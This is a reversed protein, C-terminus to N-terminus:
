PMWAPVYGGLVLRRAGTGDVNITWIETAQSPDTADSRMFVLARGDPRWVFTGHHYLPDATLAHAESGDARMLWLQRGPTWVGARLNKRAFAIWEGSPAYVPAADEV